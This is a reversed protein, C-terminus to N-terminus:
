GTGGHQVLVRTGRDSDCLLRYARTRCNTFWADRRYTSRGLFGVDFESPLTAAAAMRRVEPQMCRAPLVIDSDMGYLAYFDGCLKLDSEPTPQPAGTTDMGMDNLNENKPDDENPYRNASVCLLEGSRELPSKTINWADSWMQVRPGTTTTPQTRHVTRPVYRAEVVFCSSVRTLILDTVSPSGNRKMRLM